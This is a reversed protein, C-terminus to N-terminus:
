SGVTHGQSGVNHERSGPADGCGRCGAGWHQGPAMMGRSGRTGELVRVATIGGGRSGGM